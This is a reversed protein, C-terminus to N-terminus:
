EGGLATARRTRWFNFSAWLSPKRVPSAILSNHIPASLYISMYRLTCEGQADLYDTEEFDGARDVQHKGESNKIRGSGLPRPDYTYM